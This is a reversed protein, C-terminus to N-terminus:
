NENQGSCVDDAYILSSIMHGRFVVGELRLSGWSLRDVFIIFTIPSFINVSNKFTLIGTVSLTYTHYIIIPAFHGLGTISTTYLLKTM